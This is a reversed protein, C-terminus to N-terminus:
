QICNEPGVVTDFTNRAWTNSCADPVVEEINDEDDFLVDIEAADDDSNGLATNSKIVNDAPVPLGFQPLGLLVIGTTNDIFENRLIANGDSGFFALIGENGNNKSSNNTVTNDSSGELWIGWGNRNTNNRRLVNGSSEVLLLGTDFNDSLENNQVRNGDSLYVALGLGNGTMRNNAVRNNNANVMEMGRPGCCEASLTNGVLDMNKVTSEEVDSLLIGQACKTITGNKIKVGRVPDQRQDVDVFNVTIGKVWVNRDGEPTDDAEPPYQWDEPSSCTISHGKLNFRVDSSTIKITKNCTLSRDLKYRGPKSLDDGCSVITAGKDDDWKNDARATVALTLLALLLSTGILRATHTAPAHPM